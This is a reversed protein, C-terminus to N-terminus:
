KEGRYISRLPSKGGQDATVCWTRLGTTGQSIATGEERLMVSCANGLVAHTDNATNLPFYYTRFDAQPVPVGVVGNDMGSVILDVYHSLLKEDTVLDGREVGMWEVDDDSVVEIAQEIRKVLHKLFACNYEDPAQESFLIDALGAQGVILHENRPWRFHRSRPPIRARHQLYLLQRAALGATTSDM